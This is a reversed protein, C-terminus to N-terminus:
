WRGSMQAPYCASKTCSEIGDIIILKLLTKLFDIEWGGGGWFIM